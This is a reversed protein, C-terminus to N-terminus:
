ANLKYCDTNHATNLCLNYLNAHGVVYSSNDVTIFMLTSISDLVHKCKICLKSM